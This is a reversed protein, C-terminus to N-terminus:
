CSEEQRIAEPNEARGERRRRKPPAPRGGAGRGTRAADRRRRRRSEGGAAGYSSMIGSIRSVFGVAPSGILIVGHRNVLDLDDSARPPSPGSGAGPAARQHTLTFLESPQEARELLNLYFLGIRESDVYFLSYQPLLAPLSLPRARGRRGRLRGLLRGVSRTLLRAMAVASRHTWAGDQHFLVINWLEGRWKKRIENLLKIILEAYLSGTLTAGRDLCEMMVVEKSDWFSSGMINGAPRNAKFKSIAIKELDYVTIKNRRQAVHVFTMKPLLEEVNLNSAGVPLQLIRHLM